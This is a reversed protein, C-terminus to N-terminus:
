DSLEVLLTALEYPRNSAVMHNSAIEHYRWRSSAQAHEAADWFATGGPVDRGDAAAKIYTLGFDYQEVPKPIEISETFCRLPHPVRRANQWTAEAPDDYHRDPPPILWEDDLKIETSRDRGSLRSVSDGNAPVFADLYILERIREHVHPLAGTVVAGGYSYGIMVIDHLDEFLIQNVVDHVHTTLDVLPSALHVREGLGTLSPTFVEHGGTALQSRVTRWGHAGSWGGHVLVFTAM